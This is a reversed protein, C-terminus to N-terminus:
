FVFQLGAVWNREPSPYFFPSPVFGGIVGYESYKRDTLNNVGV